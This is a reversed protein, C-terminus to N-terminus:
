SKDGSSNALWKELAEKPILFKRGVRVNPIQKQQILEYAKNMGINLIQATENVTYVLKEM